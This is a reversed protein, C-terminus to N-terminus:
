KQRATILWHIMTLERAEESSKTVHWYRSIRDELHALFEQENLTFNEPTIGQKAMDPMLERSIKQIQALHRSKFDAVRKQFDESIGCLFGYEFDRAIKAGIQEVSMGEVYDRRATQSLLNEFEQNDRFFPSKSFFQVIQRRAEQQIEKYLDKEAASEEKLRAMVCLEGYAVAMILENQSIAHPHRPESAQIAMSSAIIAIFLLRISITQIMSNHM